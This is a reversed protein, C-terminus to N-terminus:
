WGWTRRRRLWALLGPEVGRRKFLFVLLAGTLFGGIHAFWAVGGLSALDVIGSFFQIIFWFGLFFFAPVEVFHFFFFFPVLALVRAWPFLIFYAGMVGAIAGSAGIMPVTSRASVSLQLLAAGVGSALYFLLFKIHGMAAEVNNGFIWLYLMNGLLHVWGGHLFMATFMTLWVPFQVTPSLDKGSWFEAPILGYRVVFHEQETLPYFCGQGRLMYRRYDFGPPPQGFTDRWECGNVLVLTRSSLTAQYFFLVVNIAILGITIYPIIGSIRSDRIPIM